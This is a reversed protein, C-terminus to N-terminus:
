SKAPGTKKKTLGSKRDSPRVFGMAAYIPHNSGFDAHGEVGDRVKISEDNVQKYKEDRATRKMKLQAEIDAVEQDAAAAAQINAQFTDRAIGMFTVTSAGQEWANSMKTIRERIQKNNLPM